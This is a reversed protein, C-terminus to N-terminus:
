NELNEVYDDVIEQIEAIGKLRGASMYVIQTSLHICPRYFIVSTLNIFAM